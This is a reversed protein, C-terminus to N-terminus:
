AVYKETKFTLNITDIEAYYPLISRTAILSRNLWENNGTVFYLTTNCYYRIGNSAWLVSIISRISTTPEYLCQKNTIAANLIFSLMCIPQLTYMCYFLSDHLISLFLCWRTLYVTILTTLGAPSKPEPEPRAKPTPNPGTELKLNVFHRAYNPNWIRVQWATKSQLHSLFTILLM